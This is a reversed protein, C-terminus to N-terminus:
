PKDSTGLIRNLTGIRHILRQIEEVTGQVRGFLIDFLQKRVSEHEDAYRSDSMVQGESAKSPYGDPRNGFILDFHGVIPGQSSFLFLVSNENQGRPLFPFMTRATTSSAAASADSANNMPISAIQACTKATCHNKAPRVGRAGASGAFAVAM